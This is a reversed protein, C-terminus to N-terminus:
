QSLLPRFIPHRQATKKQYADERKSVEDLFSTTADEAGDVDLSSEYAVFLEEEIRKNLMLAAEDDGSILDQLKDVVGQATGIVTRILGKEDITYSDDYTNWLVTRRTSDLDSDNFEDLAEDLLIGLKLLDPFPLNQSVKVLAESPFYLSEDDHYAQVVAAWIPNSFDDAPPIPFLGPTGLKESM